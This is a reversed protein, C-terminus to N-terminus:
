NQGYMQKDAIVSTIKLLTTGFPGHLVSLHNQPTSGQSAIHSNSELAKLMLLKTYRAAALQGAQMGSDILSIVHQYEAPRELDLFCFSGGSM